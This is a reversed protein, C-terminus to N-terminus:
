AVGKRATSRVTMTPVITKPRMPKLPRSAVRWIRISGRDWGSLHGSSRTLAPGSMRIAVPSDTPKRAFTQFMPASPWYMAPAIAPVPTASAVQVSAPKQIRGAMHRAPASPPMAQAAIGAKRRVRNPTLSIRVLRM